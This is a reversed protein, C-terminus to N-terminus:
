MLSFQVKKLYQSEFGNILHYFSYVSPDDSPAITNRLAEVTHVIMVNNTITKIKFIGFYEFGLVANFTECLTLLDNNNPITQMQEYFEDHLAKVLEKKNLSLHYHHFIMLKVLLVENLFYM